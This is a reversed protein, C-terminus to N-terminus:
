RSRCRLGRVSQPMFEIMEDKFANLFEFSTIGTMVPHSESKKRGAKTNHFFIEAGIISLTM